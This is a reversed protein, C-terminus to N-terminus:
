NLIFCNKKYFKLEEISERIDELATHTSPKKPPKAKQGFWEQCVIKFSSVDIHRYHLFDEFSPMYNKLFKRDIYISNGALVGKQYGVHECLQTMLQKEAQVLSTPSTRVRNLLGNKTHMDKVYPCIQSIVSEPQWITIDSSAVENFSSDTIIMAAQLITCTKEDLGTMELDLWVWKDYKVPKKKSTSSM